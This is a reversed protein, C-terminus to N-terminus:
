LGTFQVPHTLVREAGTTTRVSCNVTANAVRKQKLQARTAAGIYVQTVDGFQYPDGADAQMQYVNNQADTLTWRFKFGSFPPVGVATFIPFHVEAANLDIPGALAQFIEVTQGKYAKARDPIGADYKMYHVFCSYSDPTRLRETTLKETKKTEGCTNYDFYGTDGVMKDFAHAGEHILNQLRLIQSVGPWSNMCIHINFLPSTFGLRGGECRLGESFIAVPSKVGPQDCQVADTSLGNRIKDLTGKVADATAVDDNRFALFLAGATLDTLPRVGLATIVDALDAVAQDTAPKVMNTVQEPTCEPFTTRQLAEAASGDQQVTHALEHALLRRGDETDPRYKDPAFAIHSGVTFAHAGVALSAEGAGAGDHIRVQSFDRGFRREMFGRAGSDLPRGPQQLLAHVSAPAEGGAPGGADARKAQVKEPKDEQECAACKRSLRPPAAGLTPDPDRMRMVQDAAHDAEHELPDDVPGIALKRQIIGSPGPAPRPLRRLAAQNGIPGRMRLTSPQLTSPQRAARVAPEVAAERQAPAAARAFM